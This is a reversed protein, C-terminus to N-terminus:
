QNEGKKKIYKQHFSYPNEKLQKQIKDTKPKKEPVPTHKQSVDVLFRGSITRRGILVPFNNKSRDSLTFLVKVRHGKLVMTLHTRYRIQEHGSSSRVVVAKFDRRKIVEGSYFPSKQNFLQFSLVGDKSVDLHSVWIASSDAGTDVKAPINPIGNVEIYETSGIVKLKNNQM